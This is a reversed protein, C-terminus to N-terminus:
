YITRTLFNIGLQEIHAVLAPNDIQHKLSLDVKWPLNLDDIKGEILHLDRLKLAEAEICLDIDSAPKERGLARSGYLWVNEIRTDQNFVEKLKQIATDPLGFTM